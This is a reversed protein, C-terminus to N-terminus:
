RARRTPKSRAGQPAPKQQKAPKQKKARAQRESGDRGKTRGSSAAAVPDPAQGDPERRAGGGAQALAAELDGVRQLLDASLQGMVELRLRLDEMARADPDPLRDHELDPGPVTVEGKRAVRGPVGVVSSRTPIDKVVVSNAGIKTDRGIGLPGLIKAGAGIVVNDGVSPHRKERRWSVGGLTV